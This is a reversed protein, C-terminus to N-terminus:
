QEVYMDNVFFWNGTAGLKFGKVAKRMAYYQPDDLTPMDLAFETIMKQAEIFLKARADPDSTEQTKLLTDDLAANQFRTWAWGGPQNNKSYFEAFLVDPEFSRLREYMLDFDGSLVRQLQVPGPVTEIKLTVGITRFQAALFEGIEKHHLMVMTLVLPKGDKERVGARPNLKWGAEDLLAKAKEPNYAYSNEAGRWYYLSYKTLPGKVVVYNGDYLTQNMKNQDYAFRLAQRVKLNDLPPKSTNFVFQLGNGPQYGATIQFDSTNKYTALAQSPLGMVMNVEGSRLVQGLVGEEGVFRITISEPYAAGSHDQVLPIGSYESHRMFKVHDGKVWETMTFAGEGVLHQQFSTGLKRVADPSWVPFISLGFLLAPVSTSYIIRLTLKDVADVKLFNKAGLYDAMLASHTQPNMVRDINFKVAEADVPTGDQFKVNARLKLTWIRGGSTVSWSTALGPVYKAQPTLVVLPDSVFSDFLWTSTYPDVQGDMSAPEINTPAAIVLHGGRAPAATGPPVAVGTAMMGAVAVVSVFARMVNM